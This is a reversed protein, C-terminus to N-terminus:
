SRSNMNTEECIKLTKEQPSSGKVMFRTLSRQSRLREAKMIDIKTITSIQPLYKKNEPFDPFHM